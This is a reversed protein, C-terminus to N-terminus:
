EPSKQYQDGYYLERVYHLARTSRLSAALGRVVAEACGQESLAVHIALDLALDAVGKATPADLEGLEAAATLM